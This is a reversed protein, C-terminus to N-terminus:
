FYKQISIRHYDFDRMIFVLCMPKPLKKERVGKRISTAYRNDKTERLACEVTYLGDNYFVKKYYEGKLWIISDKDVKLMNLCDYYMQLETSDLISIVDENMEGIYRLSQKDNSWFIQSNSTEIYCSFIMLFIIKKKNSISFMNM